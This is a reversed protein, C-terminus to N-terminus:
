PVVQTFFFISWINKTMWDILYVLYLNLSINNNFIMGKIINVTCSRRALWAASELKKRTFTVM